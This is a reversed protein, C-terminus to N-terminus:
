RTAGVVGIRTAASTSFPQERSSLVTISGDPNMREETYRVLVTASTRHTFYSGAATARAFRYTTTTSGDAGQVVKYSNSPYGAPATLSSSADIVRVVTAATARSGAWRECRTSSV